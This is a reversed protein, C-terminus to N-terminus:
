LLCIIFLIVYHFAQDLEMFVSKSNEDEINPMRKINISWWNLFTKKDLVIHSIFIIFTARWDFYGVFIYGMITLVITYVSCHIFLATWSNDKNKAQFDTQFLYDAIKHAIYLVIFLKINFDFDFYSPIYTKSFVHNLLIYFGGILLIVLFNIISKIASNVRHVKFGRILSVKHLECTLENILNKDSSDNLNEVYEFVSSKLKLDEYNNYLYKGKIDPITQNLFFMDKTEIGENNIQKTPNIMPVLTLYALWISKLFCWVMFMVFIIFVIRNFNNLDDITELWDKRTNIVSNIIITWFGVVALAKTDSFRIISQTDDIAKYLFDLKPKTNDVGNEM